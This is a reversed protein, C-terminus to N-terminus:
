PIKLFIRRHLTKEDCYAKQLFSKINSAVLSNTLPCAFSQSPRFNLFKSTPPPPHTPEWGLGNKHKNEFDGSRPLKRVLVFDMM